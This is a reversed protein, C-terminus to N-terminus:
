PVEQSCLASLSLRCGGFGVQTPKFRVLRTFTALASQRLRLKGIQIVPIITTSVEHPKLIHSTSLTHRAQLLCM